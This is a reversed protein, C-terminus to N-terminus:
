FFLFAVSVMVFNLGFYALPFLWRCRYDVRDGLERKGRRDLAGVSLNVVVTACMTMFSFSLFSHMLTVYSIHPMSDSIVLQYAVGTLIGIFSVSIRDGLSSRDMWFVTFSLLVIVILPLVILRRTYFSDREIDVSVILASAVGQHGAYSASRDRSEMGSGTISWEPIRVDDVLLSGAYASEVEMVVENRDFGLVEFVAELRHKDFPYRRLNLATEASATITEILTSTGDPKVRLVVGSKQYLGSENVLVVQPYWGPSIENFQYNGQFVKEDVGAVSPEFIQRPDNWMLTLVGSFEFTEEGDNIELIDHFEFRARVVVPGAEKPPGLLFPGSSANRPLDSGTPPALDAAAMRTCFVLTLALAIGISGLKCM